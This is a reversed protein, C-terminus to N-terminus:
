SDKRATTMVDTVDYRAQREGHAFALKMSGDAVTPLVRSKQQESGGLRVATGGLVVSAVFPKLILGRGFAEMVLMVEISGGGFGGYQEAFPLGLLGLEAYQTWLARSWGESESHYGRRKDFTYHDALLRGVSDRLLRQEESLDFDM